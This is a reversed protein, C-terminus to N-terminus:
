EGAVQPSKVPAKSRALASARARARKILQQEDPEPSFEVWGADARAKAIDRSFNSRQSYRMEEPQTKNWESFLAQIPQGERAAVFAILEDWRHGRQRTRRSEVPWRKVLDARAQRYVRAVEAPPVAVDVDLTVRGTLVSGFATRRGSVVIPPVAYPEGALIFTVVAAPPWGTYRSLTEADARLRDLAGHPVVPFRHVWRDGPVRFAIYEPGTELDPLTDGGPLERARQRAEADQQARDRIWAEVGDFPVLGGRLYWSRFGQVRSDRALGDAVLQARIRATEHPTEARPRAVPKKIPSAGLYDEAQRYKRALWEGSKQDTEWSELFGHEVLSLMVDVDPSRGLRRKLTETARKLLANTPM